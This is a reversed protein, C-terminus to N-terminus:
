KDLNPRRSGAPANSYGQAKKVCCELFAADGEELNMRKDKHLFEWVNPDSLASRKLQLRAKIGRLTGRGNSTEGGLAAHGHWFDRLILLLLGIEADDPEDLILTLRLHPSTAPKPFIPKENFLAHELSGGTFRDIAVRDQWRAEVHEVVKEEIRVRSVWLGKQQNTPQQQKHVPGFMECVADADEPAKPWNLTNAILAARHRLVGAFSTGPVVPENASQLHVMDPDDPEPSSSRILLSTYNM